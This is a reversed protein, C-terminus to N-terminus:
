RRPSGQDLCIQRLDDLGSGWRQTSCDPTAFRECRGCGKTFYDEIATIMVASRQAAAGGEPVSPGNPPSWGRRELSTSRRGVMGVIGGHREGQHANRRGRVSPEAGERGGRAVTCAHSGVEIGDGVDGADADAVPGVASDGGAASDDAEVSAGDAAHVDSARRGAGALGVQQAGLVGDLFHVGITSAPPEANPRSAALPTM